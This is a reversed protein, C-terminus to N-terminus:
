VGDWYDYWEGITITSMRNEEFISYHDMSEVRCLRIWAHACLARPVRKFPRTALLHDGRLVGSEQRIGALPHVNTRVVDVSFDITVDCYIDALRYGSTQSIRSSEAGPSSHPPTRPGPAAVTYTGYTM